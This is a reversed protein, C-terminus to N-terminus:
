AEPKEGQEPLQEGSRKSRKREQDKRRALNERLAKALRERRQSGAKGKQGETVVGGRPERIRASTYGV